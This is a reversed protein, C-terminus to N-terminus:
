LIERLKSLIRDVLSETTIAKESNAVKLSSVNQTKPLNLYNSENKINTLILNNSAMLEKLLKEATECVILSEDDPIPPKNKQKIDFLEVYSNMLGMYTTDNSGKIMKLYNLKGAITSKLDKQKDSQEKQNYIENAKEYGYKKVMHLLVRLKKIYSRYVNLKYNVIVGTVEQRMNRKQLRTKNKNIKFGEEEIVLTLADIFKDDYINYNSSFTIDDAYRSYTLRFQKALNVLKIDLFRCAFNSIIPSTPAGQPLFSEGNQDQYCILKAMLNADSKSMNFPAIQLMFSVKYQKISPFFDELDINFVYNKCLHRKANTVVSRNPIFGNPSIYLSFNRVYINQFIFNLYYLIKKLNKKPAYIERVGGSRKPIEFKDYKDVSNAIKKLTEIEILYSGQFVKSHIENVIDIFTEISFSSYKACCDDIIANIEDKLSKEMNIHDAFWRVEM